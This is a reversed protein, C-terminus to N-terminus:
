PTATTPFLDGVAITSNLASLPALTDGDFLTLQTKYAHGSSIPAPDRYVELQRHVLNIIWYDAIGARAYDDRKTSRDKRLTADSVEVLLRAEAPVPHHEEYDQWSGVVVLIDPEPETGDELTIPAEQRLDFGEGFAAQLADIARRIASYHPTGQPPLTWIEGDLLEVREDDFLGLEGMRYYEATTWFRPRLFKDQPADVEPSEKIAPPQTAAAPREQTMTMSM